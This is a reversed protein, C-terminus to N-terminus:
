MINRTRIVIKLVHESSPYLKPLHGNQMEAQNSTTKRHDQNSDARNSLNRPLVELRSV